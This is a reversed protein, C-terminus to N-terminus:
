LTPCGHPGSRNVPRLTEGGRRRPNLTNPGIADTGLMVHRSRIM